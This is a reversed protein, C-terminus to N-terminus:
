LPSEGLLGAFRLGWLTGALATSAIITYTARNKWASGWLSGHSPALWWGRALMVVTFALFPWTLAQLAPAFALGTSSSGLIGLLGTVM